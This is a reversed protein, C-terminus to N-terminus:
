PKECIGREQLDILFYLLCERTSADGMEAIDVIMHYQGLRKLFQLIPDIM